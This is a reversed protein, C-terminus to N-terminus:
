RTVSGSPLGDICQGGQVLNSSVRGDVGVNPWLSARIQRDVGAGANTTGTVRTGAVGPRNSDALFSNHPTGSRSLAPNEAGIPQLDCLWSPWMLVSARLICDRHVDILLAGVGSGARSRIGCTSRWKTARYVKIPPRDASDMRPVARKETPVIPQSRRLRTITAALQRARPPLRM